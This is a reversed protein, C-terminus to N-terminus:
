YSGLYVLRTTLDPLRRLVARFGESGPVAEIDFYFLFEFDSGAIPRSELKSINIGLGAFLSVVNFLTGPENRLSLMFSSHAAGDYIRPQGAICIFRTFNHEASVINEELVSLSYIGACEPSAIAAIRGDSDAAIKAAVATNSCSTIKLGPNGKQLAALFKECQQLAQEHSIIERIDSLSSGKKALLAHEVRLKHSRVIFLGSDNLLDYVAHVSGATSNEIPLIGFECDGERVAAIVGAWTPYFGISPTVFINRAAISSYAGDIGQCAVSGSKPFSGFGVCPEDDAGAQSAFFDYQREKSVHM